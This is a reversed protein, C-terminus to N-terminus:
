GAGELEGRWSGVGGSCSRMGGKVRELEEKRVEAWESEPNQKLCLVRVGPPVHRGGAMEGRLDHLTQELSENADELVKAKQELEDSKAHLARITDLHM